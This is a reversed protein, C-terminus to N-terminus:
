ARESKFYARTIRTQGDLVGEEPLIFKIRKDFDQGLCNHTISRRIDSSSITDFIYDQFVYMTLDSVKKAYLGYAPNVMLLKQENLIIGRILGNTSLEKALKYAGSSSIGFIKALDSIWMPKNFENVLVNNQGLCRLLKYFKGLTADSIEDPIAFDEFIKVYNKANSKWIFMGNQYKSERWNVFEVGYGTETNIYSKKVLIPANSM